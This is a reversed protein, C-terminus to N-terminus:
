NGNTSNSNQDISSGPLSTSSVLGESTDIEVIPEDGYPEAIISAVSDKTETDTGEPEYANEVTRTINVTYSNTDAFACLAKNGDSLVALMVYYVSERNIEENNSSNEMYTIDPLTVSIDQSEDLGLPRELLNEGPESDEPYIYIEDLTVGDVAYENVVNYHINIGPIDTIESQVIISDSTVSTSDPPVTTNETTSLAMAICCVLILLVVAGLMVLLKIKTINNSEKGM